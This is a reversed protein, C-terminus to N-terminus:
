RITAREYRERMRKLFAVSEKMEELGNMGDEISIWGHFDVSSLRTFIADYDNLGKGTVGHVLCDAYGLGTEAQRLSQLTAGPKLYRDSAHVTRVRSLVADLLSIPDDGAMLANSPDYQVGFAPSDIRGVIALFTERHQAFEPYKWFGDKYHNEIVLQVGCREAEPLCSEICQVVWDIGDSTSVGPRRQGSLTRCYGAGLEAAAHIASIQKEIELQRAEADPFTFDPSYCFMPIQMGLERARSRISSLYTPSSSHLFGSYLELGDCQLVSSASIWDFLDMRGSCIEEIWCKPFASISVKM